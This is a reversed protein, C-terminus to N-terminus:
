MSGRSPRSFSPARSSSSDGGREMSHMSIAWRCPSAVTPARTADLNLSYLYMGTDDPAIAGRAILARETSGDAYDVQLFWQAGSYVGPLEPDQPDPLAFANGEPIHIPPYTQCVEDLNGLTGTLTIVPGDVAMPTQNDASAEEALYAGEDVSWRYIGPADDVNLITPSSQLWGQSRKMQYATYQPYCSVANPSEGGNMPDRKGVLAGNEMVPGDSNVRYWTRFRRRVSDYGWPHGEVNVGNLPYEQSIGWSASAGGTFHALTFSHGVEHIFGNGCENLWMGSWGTWGAALGANNVDAYTGDAFGVWGQVM